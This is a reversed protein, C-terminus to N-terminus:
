IIPEHAIDQSNGGGTLDPEKIMSSKPPSPPDGKAASKAGRGSYPIKSPM